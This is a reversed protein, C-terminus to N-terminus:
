CVFPTQSGLGTTQHCYCSCSFPGQHNCGCNKITVGLGTFKNPQVEKIPDSTTYTYNPTQKKFVEKLHDRIVAERETLKIGHALEFFGQLWYVFQEPTMKSEPELVQLM